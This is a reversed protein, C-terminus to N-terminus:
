LVARRLRQTAEWFADFPEALAGYAASQATSAMTAEPLMACIPAVVRFDRADRIGARLTQRCASANHLLAYRSGKSALLALRPKFASANTNGNLLTCADRPPTHWPFPKLHHTVLVPQTLRRTYRPFFGLARKNASKFAAAVSEHLRWVSPCRGGLRVRLALGCSSPLSRITMALAWQDDPLTGRSARMRSLQQRWQAILHDLGAGKRLLIAFNHPYLQAANQPYFLRGIGGLRARGGSGLPHDSLCEVAEINTAIDYTPKRRAEALLAAHLLPSCATAHSDLALTLKFPSAALARLRPAWLPENADAAALHLVYSFANAIERPLSPETSSLAIPLSPNLARISRASSAAENLFKNLHISKANARTAHRYVVYLIGVDTSTSAITPLDAM